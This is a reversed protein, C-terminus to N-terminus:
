FRIGFWSLFGGIAYKAINVLMDWLGMPEQSQPRYPKTELQVNAVKRRRVENTKKTLESQVSTLKQRLKINESELEDVQKQNVEVMGPSALEETVVLIGDPKDLDLDFMDADNQIDMIHFSDLSAALFLIINARFIISAM